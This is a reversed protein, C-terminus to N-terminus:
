EKYLPIRLYFTSGEGKTPDFGIKGGMNQALEHCIGLGLGTGEGPAKTTFFPEFIKDCVESAIGSGNDSVTALFDGANERVELIIKKSTRGKLADRANSIFNMIIQQIHGGNGMVRFKPNSPFIFEMVIGDKEYIGSTLLYTKNVFEFADILEISTQEGARSYQKLNKVIEEVRANAEEIHDFYEFLKDSSELSSLKELRSRLVKLFGISISMPNNIEHGLGAAITGLSALKSQHFNIAKQQDLQLQLNKLEVERVKNQSKVMIDKLILIDTLQCSPHNLENGLDLKKIDQFSELIPWLILLIEDENRHYTGRMEFPIKHFKLVLVRGNLQKEIEKDLVLKPQLFDCVSPLLEDAVGFKTLSESVKVIQLNSTLTLWFPGLSDYFKM